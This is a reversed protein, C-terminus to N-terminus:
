NVLMQEYSQAKIGILSGLDFLTKLMDLRTNLIETKLNLKKATIEDLMREPTYELGLLVANKQKVAVEAKRTLLDYDHQLNLLSKKKFEFLNKISKIKERLRLKIAEKQALYSNRQTDIIEDRHKNFDIPLRVRVGVMNEADILLRNNNRREISLRLSVNDLYKPQFESRKIFIDQIRLDYSYGTAKEVMWQEDKLVSTEIKNLLDFWLLPLKQQEATQYFLQSTKAKALKNEADIFDLQDIYGEALQSKRKNVWDTYFLVLESITKYYVYNKIQNIRYHINDVQKFQMNNQLQLYQLKSQLRKKEAQVKAEGWGDDFLELELAVKRDFFDSDLSETNEVKVYVGKFNSTNELIEVFRESSSNVDDTLQSIDKENNSMDEEVFLYDADFLVEAYVTSLLVEIVFICLFLTISKM